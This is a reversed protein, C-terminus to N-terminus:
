SRKNGYIVSLSNHEGNIDEINVDPIFAPANKCINDLIEESNITLNLSCGISKICKEKPLPMM